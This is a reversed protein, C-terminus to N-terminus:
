RIMQNHGAAIKPVAGRESFTKTLQKLASQDIPQWLNCYDLSLTRRRKRPEIGIDFMLAKHVLLMRLGESGRYLDARRNRPRLRQAGHLFRAAANYCYGLLLNRI